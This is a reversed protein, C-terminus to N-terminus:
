KQTTELILESLKSKVEKFQEKKRYLGISSLLDTIRTHNEMFFIKRIILGVKWRYTCTNVEVDSREESFIVDEPCTVRGHIDKFTRAFSCIKYSFAFLFYLIVFNMIAWESAATAIAYTRSGHTNGNYLAFIHTAPGLWCFAVYMAVFNLFRVFVPTALYNATLIDSAGALYTLVIQLVSYILSFKYLFLSTMMLFIEAYYAWPTAYLEESGNKYRSHLEPVLFGILVSAPIIVLEHLCREGELFYIPGGTEILEHTISKSVNSTEAYYLSLDGDHYNRYWDATMINREQETRTGALRIALKAAVVDGIYIFKTAVLVHDPITGFECPRFGTNALILCLESLKTKVSLKSVYCWYPRIVSYWEDKLFFLNERTSIRFKQTEIPPINMEDGYEFAREQM